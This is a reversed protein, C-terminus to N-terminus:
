NAGVALAFVRARCIPGRLCGATVARLLTADIRYAVRARTELAVVKIETALAFQAKCPVLKAAKRRLRDPAALALQM